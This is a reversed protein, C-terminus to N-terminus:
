FSGLIHTMLYIYVYLPIFWLFEVVSFYAQEGGLPAERVWILGM